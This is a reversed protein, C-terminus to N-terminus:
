MTQRENKSEKVIDIVKRVLNVDLVEVVVGEGKQRSWFPQQERSHVFNLV